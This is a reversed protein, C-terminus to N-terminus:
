VSVQADTQIRVLSAISTLCQPDVCFFVCYKMRVVISNIACVEVVCCDKPPTNIWLYRHSESINLGQIVAVTDVEEAYMRCLPGYDCPKHSHFIFIGPRLAFVDRAM